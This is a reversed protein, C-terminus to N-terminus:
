AARRAKGGTPSKAATRSALQVLMRLSENIAAASGFHRWVEDDILVAHVAEGTLLHAYKGRKGRRLQTFDLEPIAKLSAKSPGKSSAKKM